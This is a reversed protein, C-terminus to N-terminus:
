NSFSIDDILVTGQRYDANWAELVFALEKVTAWDSLNLKAFPITMRQWQPGVDKVYYTAKENKQNSIVLKVIGPYANNLGRISFKLAQFKSVDKEPISIAFTKTSPFPDNLDYAVKILSNNLEYYVQNKIVSRRTLFATFGYVTTTLIVGTIVINIVLWPQNVAKKKKRDVTSERKGLYVKALHEYIEDRTM